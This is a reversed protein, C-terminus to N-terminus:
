NKKTWKNKNNRKKDARRKIKSKEERSKSGFGICSIGLFIVFIGAWKFASMHESLYKVSLFSVWVFSMSIFPYLVSLEGKKLAVILIFAGIAYSLLGLILPYNTILLHLNLALNKSGTKFLVQGISTFVTCLLVLLIASIKTKLLM